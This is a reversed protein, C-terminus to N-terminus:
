RACRARGDVHRGPIAISPVTLPDATIAPM